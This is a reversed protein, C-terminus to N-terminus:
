DASAIVRANHVVVGAYFVNLWILTRRAFRPHKQHLKTLGWSMLPVVIVKATIVKRMSPFVPNAEAFGRSTGQYTLYVDAGQLGIHSTLLTNFLRDKQPAATTNEKQSESAADEARLEPGAMLCFGLALFLIMRRM